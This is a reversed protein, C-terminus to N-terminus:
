ELDASALYLMNFDYVGGKHENYLKWPIPFLQEKLFLM